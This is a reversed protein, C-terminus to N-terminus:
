NIRLKKLQELSKATAAYEFLSAYNPLSYGQAEEITRMLKERQSSTSRKIIGTM